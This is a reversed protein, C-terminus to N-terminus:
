ASGTATARFNVICTSLFDPTIEIFSYSAWMRHFSTRKRGTVAVIYKSVKLYKRYTPDILAHDSVSENTRYATIDSVTDVNVLLGDSSVVRESSVPTPPPPRCEVPSNVAFLSSQNDIYSPVNSLDAIKAQLKRIMNSDGTKFNDSPFKNHCAVELAQLSSPASSYKTCEGRGLEQSFSESILYDDEPLILYKQSQSKQSLPPASKTRKHRRLHFPITNPYPGSDTYSLEDWIMDSDGLSRRSRHSQSASQPKAQSLSPSDKVESTKFQAEHRGAYGLEKVNHSSAVNKTLTSKSPSNLDTSARRTTPTVRHSQPQPSSVSKQTPTGSKLSDAILENFGEGFIEDLTSKSTDRLSYLEESTLLSSINSRFYKSNYLKQRLSDTWEFDEPCSDSTARTNPQGPSCPSDICELKESWRLSAIRNKVTNKNKVSSNASQSSTPNSSSTSKRSTTKDSCTSFKTKKKISSNSSVYSKELESAKSEMTSDLCKSNGWKMPATVRKRSKRRVSPAEEENLSYSVHRNFKVKSITKSISSQTPRSISTQITPRPITSQIPRPITSQAPRPNSNQARMRMRAKMSATSNPCSLAKSTKSRKRAPPIEDDNRESPLSSESKAGSISSQSNAGTWSSASSKRHRRCLAKGKEILSRRTYMLSDVHELEKPSSYESSDSLSSSAASNKDCVKRKQAKPTHMISTDSISANQPKCSTSILLPSPILPKTPRFRLRTKNRMYEDHLQASSLKAAMMCKAISDREPSLSDKRNRRCHKLIGKLDETSNYRKEIPTIRNLPIQAIEKGGCFRKPSPQRLNKFSSDAYLSDQEWSHSQHGDSSSSSSRDTLDLVMARNQAVLNVKDSASSSLEASDSKSRNLMYSAQSKVSETNSSSSSSSTAYRLMLTYADLLEERESSSSSSSLQVHRTSYRCESGSLQPSSSSRKAVKTSSESPGKTVKDQKVQLNSSRKAVKTSSSSELQGETIEDQKVQLSSSKKAVKTPSESFEQEGKTVEDQKVQLSSSRKAVKAPIEFFEQEGKTVENQRVQLSSSRKAVKTSSESSVKLPDKTVEAQKVQLSNSESKAVKASSGSSELPDKTDEDELLKSLLGENKVQLSDRTDTKPSASEANHEVNQNGDSVGATQNDQTFEYDADDSYTLDGATEVATSSEDANALRTSEITQNLECLVNEPEEELRSTALDEVATETSKIGIDADVAEEVPQDLESLGNGGLDESELKSTVLDESESELRSDEVATQTGMTSKFGIDADVPDEVCECLVDESETSTSLDEVATQTGMTSNFGIDSDVPEEVCECLVDESETSTLLDEVATQTGMTFKFGIDPDEACECVNESETSTSLDEVATQTGMPFKFGIDSDVPEEVCECLVDESETSTSLDEVATQTGMTFKFGIDANVPDEVCEDESETSTSLDEIATQRRMTSKFGIVPDEVCEFEYLVNEPETMCSKIYDEHGSGQTKHSGQSQRLERYGSGQRMSIMSSEHFDMKLYERSHSFVSDDGVSIVELSQLSDERIASSDECIASSRTHDESVHLSTIYKEELHNKMSTIPPNHSSFGKSEMIPLSQCQRRMSTQTAPMPWVFRKFLPVTNNPTQGYREAAALRPHTALVVAPSREHREGLSDPSNSEAFTMALKSLLSSAGCQINTDPSTLGEAPSSPVIDYMWQGSSAVTGAPTALQSSVYSESPTLVEQIEDCFKVNSLSSFPAISLSSHKSEILSDSKSPKMGHSYSSLYRLLVSCLSNNPVFDQEYNISSHTRLVHSEQWSSSVSAANMSDRSWTWQAPVTTPLQGMSLSSAFPQPPPIYDLSSSSLSQPPLMHDLSSSAFLQPPPTYESSSSALLQPPPAYESSSSTLRQPPPTYESSSSALSQPPPTYESSSSAPSQPPIHESSSSALSQATTSIYSEVPLVRDLDSSESASPSSGRSNIPVMEYAWQFSPPLQEDEDMASVLVDMTVRLIDRTDELLESIMESTETDLKECSMERSSTASGPSAPEMEDVPPSVLLIPVNKRNLQNPSNYALLEPQHPPNYVLEPQNPSNYALETRCPSNFPQEPRYEPQHDPSNYALEPRDPSAPPLFPTPPTLIIVPQYPTAYAISSQGPTAIPVEEPDPTAISELVTQSPSAPAMEPKNENGTHAIELQNSGPLIEPHIYAQLSSSFNRKLLQHIDSLSFFRKDSPPDSGSVETVSYLLAESSTNRLTSSSSPSISPCLCSDSWNLANCSQAKPSSTISMSIPKGDLSFDLSHSRAAAKGTKEPDTSFFNMVRDFLAKSLAFTEEITMDRPPVPTSNTAEPIRFSASKKLPYSQKRRLCPMSFSAGVSRPLVESCVKIDVTEKQTPKATSDNTFPPKSKGSMKTARTSGKLINEHAPCETLKSTTLCVRVTNKDTQENPIVPNEEKDYNFPKEGVGKGDKESEEKFPKEDDSKGKFPKESEEKFNYQPMEDDQLSINMMAKNVLENGGYHELASIVTGSVCVDDDSEKKEKETLRLPQELSVPEILAIINNTSTEEFCCSNIAQKVYNDECQEKRCRDSDKHLLPTPYENESSQHSANSSISNNGLHFFQPTGTTSHPPVVNLGSCSSAYTEIEDENSSSSEYALSTQLSGDDSGHSLKRLTAEDMKRVLYLQNDLTRFRDVSVVSRQGRIGADITISLTRYKEYSNNRPKEQFRTIIPSPKEKFKSIIPPSLKTIIPPPKEKFKTIRPPPKEKMELPTGESDSMYSEASTFVCSSSGSSCISFTRTTNVGVFSGSVAEKDKPSSLTFISDEDVFFENNNAPLPSPTFVTETTSASYKSVLVKDEARKQYPLDIAYRRFLEEDNIIIDDDVM